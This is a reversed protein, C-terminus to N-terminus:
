RRGNEKLTEELKQRAAPGGKVFADIIGIFSHLANYGGVISAHEVPKNLFKNSVAAEKFGELMKEAEERAMVWGGNRSLEEMTASQHIIRRLKDLALTLEDREM